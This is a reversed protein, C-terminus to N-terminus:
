GDSCGSHVQYGGETALPLAEEGTGKTVGSAGNQADRQNLDKEIEEVNGGCGTACKRSDIGNNCVLTRYLPIFM